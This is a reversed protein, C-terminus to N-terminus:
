SDEYGHTAEKNLEDWDKVGLPTWHRCQRGMWGYRLCTCRKLECRGYNDALYNALDTVSAM